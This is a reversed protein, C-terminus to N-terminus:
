DNSSPESAAPRPQATVGEADSTSAERRPRRVSRRLFEPQEGAAESFRERRRPAPAPAAPAEVPPASAEPAREVEGGGVPIAHREGNEPRESREPREAREVRESREPRDARDRDVRDTREPREPRESREPREGRDQREGYPTGHRPREFREGNEGRPFRERDQRPNDGRDGRDGRDQRDQNFRHDNRQRFNRNDRDRQQYGQGSDRDRYGQDHHRPQREERPMRDDGRPQGGDYVRPQPENQRMGMPQQSTDGGMADEGEEGTDGDFPEGPAPFSRQRPLGGMGDGGNQQMQQERYTLIIRNYHEAHQLYNEALVPDGSSLADRALSMYKEAIQAPTGHIKQDPGNSQYTRMLPNHHHQGKRGPQNHQNSRGRGRRNQQGQRM